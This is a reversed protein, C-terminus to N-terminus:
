KALAHEIVSAILAKKAKTKHYFKGVVCLAVSNWATFKDARTAKSIFGWPFDSVEKGLTPSWVNGQLAVYYAHGPIRREVWVFTM